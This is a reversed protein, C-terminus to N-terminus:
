FEMSLDSYIPSRKLIERIMEMNINEQLAFKLIADDSDKEIINGNVLQRIDQKTFRIDYNGSLESKHLIFGNKCIHTFTVETLVANIEKM